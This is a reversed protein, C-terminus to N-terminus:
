EGILSLILGQNINVNSPIVSSAGVKKCIELVGLFAKDIGWMYYQQSFKFMEERQNYPIPTIRKLFNKLESVKTQYPHNHSLNARELKLGITKFLDIICSSGYVVPTKIGSPLPLLQERIYSRM